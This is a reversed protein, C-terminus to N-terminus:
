QAVEVIFNLMNSTLVSVHADEPVAIADKLLDQVNYCRSRPMWMGLHLESSHLQWEARSM